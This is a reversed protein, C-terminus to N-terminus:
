LHLFQAWPSHHGCGGPFPSAPATNQTQVGMQSWVREMRKIGGLAGTQAPRPIHTPPPTDAPASTLLALGVGPWSETGLTPTEAGEEAVCRMLSSTPWM